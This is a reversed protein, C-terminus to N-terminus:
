RSESIILSIVALKIINVHCGDETELLTNGQCCDEARINNGQCRGGDRIVHKRSLLGGGKYQTEKVVMRPGLLTNGQCSYEARNVHKWSM